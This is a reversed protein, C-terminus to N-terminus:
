SSRGYSILDCLCNSQAEGEARIDHVTLLEKMHWTGEVERLGPQELDVTAPWQLEPLGSSPLQRDFRKDFRTAMRDCEDDWTLWEPPLNRWRSSVFPDAWIDLARTLERFANDDDDGYSQSAYYLLSESDAFAAAAADVLAMRRHQLALRQVSQATRGSFSFANQLPQGRQEAAQIQAEFLLSLDPLGSDRLQNHLDSWTNKYILGCTPLSTGFMLGDDVLCQDVVFRAAALRFREEGADVCPQSPLLLPAVVSAVAPELGLGEVQAIRLAGFATAYAPFPGTADAPVWGKRRTCAFAHAAAPTICLTPFQM